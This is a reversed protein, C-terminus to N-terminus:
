RGGVNSTAASGGASSTVTVTGPKPSMSFTGIYKDKKSNYDLQGLLVMNGYYATLTAAPSASSTAEVTLEGKRSSYNAKTITVADGQAAPAIAISLQQSDTAADDDTVTVTFNQTEATTPTGSIEGTTSFILGDPLVGATIAWGYAPTGGTAQLTASYAENVTGGPLSTTTIDLQNSPSGEVGLDGGTVARYSNLRGSGFHLADGVDDTTSEIRARLASGRLGTVSAVVGATGTVQPAAMSTGQFYAYGGRVSSWIGGEPTTNSYMEGGPATIDLGDGWNSYYSLKDQWNSAAVSIANLDCAPCRVTGTGGNGASAIVLADKTNVAYEIADAEAQSETSGSLSLNMAVVGAEAAAYIAAVIASTPCGLSGCVRYVVVQVKVEGESVAGSVGAVGVWQGVMTGTTHTGHDDEDSPDDDNSYFDGGVILQNDGFEQHDFDVGTDISAIKVPDGNAGYLPLYDVNDEDADDVSIKSGVVDGKNRGRTFSITLGGPNYFAWLRPDVTTQRLYNPEAWVVQADAGMRAALARENGAAGQFVTFGGRASRRNVQLGYNAAVAQDDAGEVLRALVQGAMVREAEQTVSASSSSFLPGDAVAPPQVLDQCAASFLALATVSLPFARGMRLM